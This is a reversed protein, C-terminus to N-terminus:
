VIMSGLAAGGSAALAFAIGTLSLETAGIWARASILTVGSMGSGLALLKGRTLRENLRLTALGLTFLPQLNGGM